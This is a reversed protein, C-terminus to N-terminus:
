DMRRTTGTDIKINPITNATMCLKSYHKFDNSGDQYLTTTQCNGDTFDKYLCDDIKTDDPENIHSLRISPRSIYTNLIKDIKTNGKSFTNKPLTFVYDQFSKKCIELVTSKGTSGLGTLFLITQESCSQGTFAIAYTMLLYNRDDERPYIKTIDVMVRDIDVKDSISYDRNIYVNIFHKGIVRKEFSGTKYNFFGNIFHIETLHPDSFNIKNNTLYSLLQPLYKNVDSNTFIKDYSKKFKLQLLEKQENSLHKFSQEIFLTILTIIYDNDNNEKIYLISQDDFRYFMGNNILLYNLLKSSILKAKENPMCSIILLEIDDFSLFHKAQFKLNEM